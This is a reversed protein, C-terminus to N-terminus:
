GQTGRRAEKTQRSCDEMAQNSLHHRHDNCSHHSNDGRSHRKDPSINHNGASVPQRQSEMPLVLVGKAWSALLLRHGADIRYSWQFRDIRDLRVSPYLSQFLLVLCYRLLSRHLHGKGGPEYDAWWAKSDLVVHEFLLWRAPM